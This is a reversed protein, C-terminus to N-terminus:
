VIFHKRKHLNNKKIYKKYEINNKYNVKVSFITKSILKRNVKLLYHFNVQNYSLM